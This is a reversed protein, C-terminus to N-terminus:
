QLRLTTCVSSCNTVPLLLFVLHELTGMLNNEKKLHKLCEVLLPRINNKYWGMVNNFHKNLTVALVNKNGKLFM